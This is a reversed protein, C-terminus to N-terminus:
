QLVVESYIQFTTTSPAAAVAQQKMANFCHMFKFDTYMSGHNLAHCIGSQKFATGDPRIYLRARCRGKYCKCSELGTKRSFSNKYYLHEEEFAWVLNSGERLGPILTYQVEIEGITIPEDDNESLEDNMERLLQASLLESMNM